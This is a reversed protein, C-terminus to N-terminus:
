PTWVKFVYGDFCNSLVVNKEDLNVKKVYGHIGGGFYLGRSDACGALVAVVTVITPNVKGQSRLEKFLQM